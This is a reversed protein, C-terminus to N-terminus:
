EVISFASWSLKVLTHPFEWIDLIELGTEMLCRTGPVLCRYRRFSACASTYLLSVFSLYLPQSSLLSVFEADELWRNRIVFVSSFPTMSWSLFPARVRLRLAFAGPDPLLFTNVPERGCRMLPTARTNNGYMSHKDICAHHRHIQM